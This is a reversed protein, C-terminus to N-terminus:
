FDEDDIDRLELHKKGGCNKCPTLLTEYAINLQGELWQTTYNCENCVFLVDSPKCYVYKGEKVEGHSALHLMWAFTEYSMQAM